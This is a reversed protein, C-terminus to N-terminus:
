LTFYSKLYGVTNGAFTGISGNFDKLSLKPLFFVHYFM